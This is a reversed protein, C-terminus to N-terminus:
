IKTLKINIGVFLMHIEKTCGQPALFGAKETNQQTKCQTETM